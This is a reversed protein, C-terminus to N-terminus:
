QPRLLSFLSWHCDQDIDVGALFDAIGFMELHKCVGVGRFRPEFLVIGLADRELILNKLSGSKTDDPCRQNQKEVSCVKESWM